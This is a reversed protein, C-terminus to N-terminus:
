FPPVYNPVVEVNQILWKSKPLGSDTMGSAVFRVSIKKGAFDRLNIAEQGWSAFSKTYDRAKIWNTDAQIEIYASSKLDRQHWFTLYPNPWQPDVYVEDQGILMLSATGFHRNYDDNAMWCLTNSFRCGSSARLFFQLKFDKLMIPEMAVQVTATPSALIAETAAMTPPVATPATTAAPPAAANTAAIAARITARANSLAADTAAVAAAVTGKTDMTPKPAAVNAPLGCAMILLILFSLILLPILSRKM